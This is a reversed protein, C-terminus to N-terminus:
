SDSVVGRRGVVGGSFKSVVFRRILAAVADAQRFVFLHGGSPLIDLRVSSHRRALQVSESYHSFSDDKCHILQTPIRRLVGGVLSGIRSTSDAFVKMYRAFRLTAEASSLHLLLLREAVEPPTSSRASTDLVEVMSGAFAVDQSAIHLYVPLACREFESAIVAHGLGAPAIFSFSLPKLAPTSHCALIATQAAQCWGVFHFEDLRRDAVVDVFDAAQGDLGADQGGLQANADPCGRADWSVVYFDRSLARALRSVLLWSTGAPPLLVLAPAAPDGCEYLARSVGDSRVYRSVTVAALEDQLGAADLGRLYAPEPVFANM